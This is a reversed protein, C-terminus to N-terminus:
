NLPQSFPKNVSTTQMGPNLGQTQNRSSIHLFQFDGCACIYSQLKLAPPFSSSSTQPKITLWDLWSLWAWMLVSCVLVGFCLHKSPSSHTCYIRRKGVFLHICKHLIYAEIPQKLLHIEEKTVDKVADATVQTKPRLWQSPHSTSDWTTKIQM